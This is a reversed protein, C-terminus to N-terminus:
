LEDKPRVAAGALPDGTLHKLALLAVNKAAIASMEMASALWEVANLHYLGPQLEFKSSHGQQARNSRYRPYARWDVVKSSKVESFLLQLQEASLPQPSFVKYVPPNNATRDSSCDSSDVAIQLGISNYVLDPNVLLIEDVSDSPSLMFAEPRPKGEVLTAVIKEFEGPFNFKSSTNVFRIDTKDATLPTAVIVADYEQTRLDVNDLDDDDPHGPVYTTKAGESYLGPEGTTSAEM